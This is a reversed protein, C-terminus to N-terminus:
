ASVRLRPVTPCNAATSQMSGGDGIRIVADGYGCGKGDRWRWLRLRSTYVLSNSRFDREFKRGGTRSDQYVTQNL